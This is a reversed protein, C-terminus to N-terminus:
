QLQASEVIAALADFQPAQGFGSLQPQGDGYRVFVTPTGSAGLRTALQQDIQYQNAEATCDLLETYSMGMRDAFTRATRDNFREASALEFLVDHARWFSGEELNDACEALQAAVPSYTPDVAPLMRYEFRAQGTAVYQEILQNVNPKYAQCHPCLFDEFAVITVPAEPDGLIFAGDATRTSPIGSYDISGLSSNQSLFIAVIAVLVAGIIGLVIITQNNKETTKKKNESM